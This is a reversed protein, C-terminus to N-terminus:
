GSALEAAAASGEGFLFAAVRVTIARIVDKM